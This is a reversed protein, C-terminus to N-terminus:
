FVVNVIRGPVVILKKPAAGDLFKEVAPDALAMAEIDSKNADVAVSIESRRKGNIQIPLVVEDDKLLRAEVAPWPTEALVTSRGLRTWCEEALHPTMPAMLQAVTQLAEKLAARDADSKADFKTIANAIEYIRAIAKNFAFNEIDGSVGEITRHTM